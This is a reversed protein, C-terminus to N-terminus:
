DGMRICIWGKHMHRQGNAVKVMNSASLRHERCFQSLGNTTTYENGEPSIAKFRKTNIHGTSTSSMKKRTSVSTVRKKRAISLNKKHDKSFKKGKHANSMKRKTEESHKGWSKGTKSDSIKRKTSNSTIFGKRGEGGETLNCLHIGIKVCAKIHHSEAQHAEKITDIDDQIITIRFPHGEARLKRAKRYKYLDRTNDIRSNHEVCRRDFNNTYGIYYPINHKDVFAYITYKNVM